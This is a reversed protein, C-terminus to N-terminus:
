QNIANRGAAGHLYTGVVVAIMCLFNNLVVNLAFAGLRGDRFYGMSEYAFASFTTFAGCFGTAAFLRWHDHTHDATWTLVFGVILSGTVNVILTGYPFGRHHSFESSFHTVLFRLIAGLIAGISLYFINATM